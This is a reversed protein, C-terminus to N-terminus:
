SLPYGCFTGMDLYKGKGSGSLHRFLAFTTVKSRSLLYAKHSADVAQQLLYAGQWVVLSHRGLLSQHATETRSGVIADTATFAKNRRFFLGLYSTHETRLSQPFFRSIIVIDISVVKTLLCEEKM